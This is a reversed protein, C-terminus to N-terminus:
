GARTVPFCPAALVTLASPAVVRDNRIHGM